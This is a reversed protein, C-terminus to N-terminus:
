GKIQKTNFNSMSELQATSNTSLIALQQHELNILAPITEKIQQAINPNELMKIFASINNFHAKKDQRNNNIGKSINKLRIMELKFNKDNSDLSKQLEADINKLIIQTQYKLKKTAQKIMATNTKYEFYKSVINLSSITTDLALLDSNLTTIIDQNM